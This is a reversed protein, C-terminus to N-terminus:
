GGGGGAGGRRRRLFYPLLAEQVVEGVEEGLAAPFSVRNGEVEPSELNVTLGDPPPPFLAFRELLRPAEEPPARLVEELSPSLEGRLWRAVAERAAEEPAALALSFLGLLLAALFRM